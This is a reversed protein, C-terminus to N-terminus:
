EDAADSTYLLCSSISSSVALSPTSSFSAVLSPTSSSSSSVVLSPTSSISSSVVLSNSPTQSLAVGNSESVVFSTVYNPNGTATVVIAEFIVSGTGSSPSTWIGHVTKKNSNSVHTLGNPCSSAMQQVNRDTSLPVLTGANMYNASIASFIGSSSGTGVNMIFGKFNTASTLM